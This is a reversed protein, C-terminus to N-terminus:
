KASTGLALWQVSAVSRGTISAPMPAPVTLQRSTAESSWDRVSPKADSAAWTADSAGGGSANCASKSVASSAGFFSAVSAAAVRTRHSIRSYSRSRTPKPPITLVNTPRKKVVVNPTKGTPKASSCSLQATSLQIPVSVAPRSARRPRRRPVMQRDSSTMQSTALTTTASEDEM